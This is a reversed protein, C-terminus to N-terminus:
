QYKREVIEMFRNEYNEKGVWNNYDPKIMTQIFNRAQDHDNMTNLQSMVRNFDQDSGNFLHKVFGMRDNMGIKLSNTLRSNLSKPRDPDNKHSKREFVPMTQFDATLQELDTKNDAKLPTSTNPEVDEMEDPMEFVMKHITSIGPLDMEERNDDEVEDLNSLSNTTFSDRYRNSLTGDTKSDETEPLQPAKDPMETVMKSITSIGPLNMEERNDDESVELDTLSNTTFSDRYRNPLKGDTPTKRDSEPVDPADPVEDPMETVMKSITSIGPLEMEERKDEEPVFLDSLDNSSFAERVEDKAQEMVQEVDKSVTQADKQADAFAEELKREVERTGATPKIDSFHKETYALVTLKEYLEKATAQLELVNDRDKIQLIRHALSTLDAVIKKKM